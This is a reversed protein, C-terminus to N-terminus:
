LNMQMILATHRQFPFAHQVMSFNGLFGRNQMLCYPCDLISLGSVSAVIPLVLCLVFVFV